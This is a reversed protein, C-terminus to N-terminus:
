KRGHEGQAPVDRSTDLIVVVRLVPALIGMKPKPVHCDATPERSSSVAREKRVICRGSSDGREENKLGVLDPGGDLSSELGSVPVNVRLDAAGAEVGPKGRRVNGEICRRSASRRAIRSEMVDNREPNRRRWRVRREQRDRKM